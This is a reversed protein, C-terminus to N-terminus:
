GRRGFSHARPAVAAVEEAGDRTQPSGGAAVGAGDRGTEREVPPEIHRVEALRASPAQLREVSDAVVNTVGERRELRGKALALAATRVAMRCRAYTPPPVILNIVGHEDEFLM